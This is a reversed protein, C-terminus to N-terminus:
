PDRFAALLPIRAARLAPFLGGAFGIILALFVSQVVLQPSLKLAFVVQTFNSGLTAATIGDFLLYTGLAGVVGGVASLLLSETMTGVFAPLSGFGIARMTAIERTRADVSAYMTNLAGSLAGFSMAIALPWGLYLILDGIGRSQAAYFASESKVDLKLRPDAESYDILKQLDAPTELRARLTQVSSGRQYLSQLLAVDAWIESEFVSGGAEFEGVVVWNQSALRITKGLEFGRFQTSVARGVVLENTGPRFMRGASIRIGRRVQEALSGLGRLPLNAKTGSSKKIGDVV